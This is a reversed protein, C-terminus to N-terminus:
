TPTGFLDWELNGFSDMQYGSAGNSLGVTVTLSYACNVIMEPCGGHDNGTSTGNSQIVGHIKCNMNHGRQSPNTFFTVKGLPDSSDGMMPVYM